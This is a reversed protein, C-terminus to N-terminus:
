PNPNKFYGYYIGSAITIFIVAAILRALQNNQVLLLLLTHLPSNFMWDRTYIGLSHFLGKGADLFPLFAALALCLFVLVSAAKKKRLLAPLLLVPFLKVLFSLALAAASWLSKRKLCLYLALMMFFIGASDLHGSGSFEVIVLPNLAYVAVRLPSMRLRLCPHAATRSITALDFLIFVAKMSGISYSLSSAAAFIFQALPPYITPLNPRSVLPFITADRLHALAPADPSLAFPNLGESVVRGEWIYRYIDDSLSPVTPWCSSLPLSAALGLVALLFRNKLSFGKNPHLKTSM